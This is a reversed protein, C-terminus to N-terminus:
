GWRGGLAGEGGCVWENEKGLFSGEPCVETV